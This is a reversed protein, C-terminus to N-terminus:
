FLPHLMCNVTSLIQQVLLNKADPSYRMEVCHCLLIDSLYHEIVYSLIGHLRGVHSHLLKQQHM